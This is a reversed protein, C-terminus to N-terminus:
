VAMPPPRKRTVRQDQDWAKNDYNLVVRRRAARVDYV